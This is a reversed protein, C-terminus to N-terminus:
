TPKGDALLGYVLLLTHASSCHFYPQSWSLADVKQYTNHCFGQHPVFMCMHVFMCVHVFVCTDQVFTRERVCV